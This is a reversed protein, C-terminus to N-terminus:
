PDLPALWGAEVFRAVLPGDLEFADPMDDAAAAISLKETYQFDPFFSVEVRLGETAHADNFSQVIALLAKHEAEQGQHSWVRLVQM